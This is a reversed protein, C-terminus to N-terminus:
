KVDELDDDFELFKDVVKSIVDGDCITQVKVGNKSDSMHADWIWKAEKHDTIKIVLTLVRGINSSM